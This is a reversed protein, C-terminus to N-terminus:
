SGNWYLSLRTIPCGGGFSPSKGVPNSANFANNFANDSMDLVDYKGVLQVAGWGKGESWRMPNDITPRDWKGEKNYNQHGGFFSRPWLAPVPLSESFASHATASPDPPRHRLHSFGTLTKLCAM